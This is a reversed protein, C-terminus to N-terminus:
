NIKAAIPNSIKSGKVKFIFSVAGIMIAAIIFPLYAPLIDFLSGFIIQGLPISGMSLTTLVAGVRGLMSIPVEKQFMTSTAINVVMTFILMFMLLIILSIYPVMESNFISLIIPSCVLAILFLILGDLLIGYFFIDKIQHKKSVLSAAFPGILMGVSAATELLGYKFDSIKLIQKSIYTIGINIVPSIAFNIFFGSIIILLILSNNKIFSIGVKFESIFVKPSNNNLKINLKPIKIFMEATSALVFSISNAILIPFLGYFGYIVGALVPAILQAASLAFSNIGNADILEEEKMISPIVSGVAPNFIVSIVALIIVFIYIFNLTLSKNFFYIFGMVAVTLGSIMDLAVIIKKRDYRDVFVGAIPGLLIQPILSVAMVSAFKTGSGTTKLVYLSLAFSQFNNGIMSVFKGWILLFFDKNKLLKYNM